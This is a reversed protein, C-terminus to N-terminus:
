KKFIEDNFFVSFDLELAVIIKELVVLSVNRKGKEIDSLYNRDINAINALHEISFKKQNRLQHIKEGTKKNIDM